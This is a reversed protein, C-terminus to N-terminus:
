EGTGIPKRFLHAIPQLVLKRFTTVVWGWHLATHFGLLLLELNASLDHLSRWGFTRPLTMGLTPMVHESIMLGSLMLLIGNAFMLWNLLYNVRVRLSTSSWFRRTVQAIWSWNLLLHILITAFASLTLWEHIALGSSGPEMAILFGIFITIDLIWKIATASSQAKSPQDHTM